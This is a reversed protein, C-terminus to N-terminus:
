DDLEAARPLQELNELRFFHLFRDTTFYHAERSDGAAQERRVLGRRVLQTLLSGSRSGRLKDVSAVTTGQRYAVVSLVELARPSLKAERVRGHFKDRMRAMEERLVFRYGEAGSAIEYPAADRRYQQNLEEVAQHVEEPSVDRMEESLVEATRPRADDAGVFLIAEVISRPSIECPDRPSSDEVAVADGSSGGLMQSFAATLRQLSLPANNKKSHHTAM